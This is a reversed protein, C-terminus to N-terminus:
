SFQCFSYLDKISLIFFLNGLSKLSGIINSTIDWLYVVLALFLISSINGSVVKGIFSSSLFNLYPWNPYPLYTYELSSSDSIFSNKIEFM